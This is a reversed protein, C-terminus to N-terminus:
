ERKGSARHDDQVHSRTFFDVGDDTVEKLRRLDIEGISMVRQWCNRNDISGLKCTFYFDPLIEYPLGSERIMREFIKTKSPYQISVFPVLDRDRCYRTQVPLFYDIVPRVLMSEDRRLIKNRYLPHVWTRDCVRAQKGYSYIGSFAITGGIVHDVLKYFKLYDKWRKTMRDFDYNKRNKHNERSAISLAFRIEELDEIEVLEFEFEVRMSEM